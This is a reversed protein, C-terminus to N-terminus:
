VVAHALSQSERLSSPDRDAGVRCVIMTADSGDPTMLM